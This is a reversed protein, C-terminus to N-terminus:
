YQVLFFDNNLDIFRFPHSAGWLTKLRESIVEYVMTKGLLKVIVNLEWPKHLHRKFTTSLEIMSRREGYEIVIDREEVEIEEIRVWEDRQRKKQSQM